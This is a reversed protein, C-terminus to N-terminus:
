AVGWGHTQVPVWARPVKILRRRRWRHEFIALAFFHVLRTM